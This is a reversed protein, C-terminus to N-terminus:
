YAFMILDDEWTLTGIKDKCLMYNMQDKKEFWAELTAIMDSSETGAKLDKIDAFVARHPNNWRGSDKDDEFSQIMEDWIPLSLIRQGNYTTAYVLGDFISEWQLNSGTTRKIDIALADSMTQTCMIVKSIKQRLKMSADYILKDFISTAVGSMRLAGIQASYTLESNAAISVHQLPNAATIALLRKFLGDNVKFFDPNVTDTIIGGDTVNEANKDGFWVLRWIMKELALRLRPELIVDMYDTGTLDARDTGTRMSHQVITDEFDAYCLQEAVEYEILEWIKEVTDLNTTNWQPSCGNGKKGVLGMEGVGGLRSGNKVGTMFDVTENISGQQLVTLFLLEKLDMIGQNSVTFQDMYSLGTSAM